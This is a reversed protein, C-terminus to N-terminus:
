NCHTQISSLLKVGSALFFPPNSKRSSATFARRLRTLEGVRASLLAGKDAGEGVRTASRRGARPCSHHGVGMLSFRAAAAVPQLYFLSSHPRKRVRESRKGIGSTRAPGTRVQCRLIPVFLVGKKRVRRCWLSATTFRRETRTM